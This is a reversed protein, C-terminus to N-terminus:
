PSIREITFWMGTSSGLMTLSPTTAIQVEILDGTVARFSAQTTGSVRDTLTAPKFFRDDSQNFGGNKKIQLNLTDNTSTTPGLAKATARYLGPAPVRYLGTTTDMALHTDYERTDYVVTAFSSTSNTPTSKYYRANVPDSMLVSSAGGTRFGMASFSILNLVSATSSRFSIIDGAKCDTILVSNEGYASSASSGYNGWLAGNKFIGMGVAQAAAWEYGISFWYDGETQITYTGTTSNFGTLSDKLIGSFTNVGSSGNQNGGNKYAYFSVRSSAIAESMPLASAWGAVPYKFSSVFRDGSVVSSNSSDISNTFDIKNSGTNASDWRTLTGVSTTIIFSGVWANSPGLKRIPFSLEQVIRNPDINLGPVLAPRFNTWTGGAGSFDARWQVEVDGGVRRYFGIYTANTVTGSNVASGAVYSTWDSIPTGSSMASPEVRFSDLKLSWATTSTTAVHLILRYSKSGKNPQFYASGLSGNFGYLRFHSPEIVQSNAVDYIYVILDSDTATPGTTGAAFTGSVVSYDFDIRQMKVGSAAAEDISFALSCGEGQGNTASKTILLSKSGSLPATTTTGCTVTSTSGGTGDVPRSSATDKYSSWVSSQGEVGPDALFNRNGTEILYQQDGLKTLQNLPVRLREITDWSVGESRMTLAFAPFILFFSVLFSIFNKM